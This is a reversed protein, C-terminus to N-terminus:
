DARWAGRGRAAARGAACQDGHWRRGWKPGALQHDGAAQLGLRHRKNPGRRKDAPQGVVSKACAGGRRGGRRGIAGLQVPARLLCAAPSHVVKPGAFQAVLKAGRVLLLKSQVALLWSARRAGLPAGFQDAQVLARCTALLM